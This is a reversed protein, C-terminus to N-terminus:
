GSPNFATAGFILMGTLLLFSATWFANALPHHEASHLKKVVLLGAAQLLVSVGLLAFMSSFGSILV